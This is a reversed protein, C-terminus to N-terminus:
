FVPALPSPKNLTVFEASVFNAHDLPIMRRLMWECFRVCDRYPGFAGGAVVCVDDAEAVVDGAAVVGVASAAVLVVVLVGLLLFM